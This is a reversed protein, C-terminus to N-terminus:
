EPDAWRASVIHAIQREFPPVHLPYEPDILILTEEDESAIYRVMRTQDFVGILISMRGVSLSTSLKGENLWDFQRYFERLKHGRTWERYGEAVFAVEFERGEQHIVAQLVTMDQDNSELLGRLDNLLLEDSYGAVEIAAETAAETVITEEAEPALVPDAELEERTEMAVEKRDNVFAEMYDQVITRADEFTGTTGLLTVNGGLEHAYFRKRLLIRYTSAQRKRQARKTHYRAQIEVEIHSGYAFVVNEQGPHAIRWGAPLEAEVGTPAQENKSSM